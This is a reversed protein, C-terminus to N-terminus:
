HYQTCVIPSDSVPLLPYCLVAFQGVCSSDDSPLSLSIRRTKPEKMNEGVDNNMDLNDDDDIYNHCVHAARYNVVNPIKNITDRNFLSYKDKRKHILCWFELSDTCYLKTDRSYEYLKPWM